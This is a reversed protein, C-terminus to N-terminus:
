QLRRQQQVVAKAKQFRYFGVVKAYASLAREPTSYVPISAEWLCQLLREDTLFGPFAIALMAKNSTSRVRIVGDIYQRNMEDNISGGLIILADVTPDDGLVGLTDLYYELSFSAALGVDVPNKISTGYRPLITALAHRTKESLPALRLGYRGVADAASVAPGGPGSLIAVRDGGDCALHTFAAVTDLLEELSHVPIVGTQRFMANWVDERGTLAGTHSAAAQRGEQTQGVKWFIMPKRGAIDKLVRALAAGDGVGECYSCILKTAPDRGLYDLLEALDIDSGNGYSVVKSFFIGRTVCANAFLNSLSGSQSLFGVPGSRRSMGPFCALRTEPCYIGMCNPGLIRFGGTHAYQCLREEQERGGQEGMERYGATYLVVIKVRKRCCQEMVTEVAARSVLVIVMDVEGPVKDLDPYAKLGDIETADPHIPYIPGQFGQDLLALLFLKGTKFGRPVGVIAISRPNFLEGLDAM